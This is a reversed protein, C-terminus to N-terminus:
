VYENIIIIYYYYSFTVKTVTIYWDSITSMQIYILNTPM